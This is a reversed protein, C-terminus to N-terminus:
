DLASRGFAPRQAPPIRALWGPRRNGAADAWARERNALSPFMSMLESFRQGDARSLFVARGERILYSQQKAILFEAVSDLSAAAARHVDAWRELDRRWVSLDDDAHSVLGDLHRSAIELSDARELLALSLRRSRTVLAEAEMRYREAAVLAERLSEGNALSIGRFRVGFRQGRVWEHLEHQAVAISDGFEDRLAIVAAQVALSPGVPGRATSKASLAHIRFGAFGVAALVLLGVVVRRRRSRPAPTPAPEAWEVPPPPPPPPAVAINGGSRRLGELAERYAAVSGARQWSRDTGVALPTESSIDGDRIAHLFSAVDPLTHVKNRGDQYRFQM